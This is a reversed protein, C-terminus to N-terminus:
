DNREDNGSRFLLTNINRRKETADSPIHVGNYASYNKIMGIDKFYDIPDFLSAYGSMDDFGLKRMIPFSVEGRLTGPHEDNAEGCFLFVIVKM